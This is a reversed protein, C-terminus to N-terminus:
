LTELPRTATLGPLSWVCVKVVGSLVAGLEGRRGLSWRDPVESCRTLSELTCQPETPSVAMLCCAAEEVDGGAVHERDERAFQKVRIEPEAAGM